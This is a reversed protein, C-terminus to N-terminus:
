FAMRITRTKLSEKREEKNLCYRQHIDAAETDGSDKARLYEACAAEKDGAFYLAEGLYFYYDSVKPLAAPDIDALLAAAKDYQEAQLHIIAINYAATTLTPDMELAAEYDRLADPYKGLEAYSAARMYLADRYGPRIRIAEDYSRIAANINFGFYKLNGMFYHAEALEPNIKLAKKIKKDAEGYQELNMYAAGHNTLLIASQNDIREAKEYAQIAAVFKDEKQLCDGKILWAEFDNENSVIIQDLTAVAETYKGSAYLGRAQALMEDSQAFTNVWLTLM